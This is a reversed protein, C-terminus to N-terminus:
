LGDRLQRRQATEAERRRDLLRHYLRKDRDHEKSRLEERKHLAAIEADIAEIQKDFTPM